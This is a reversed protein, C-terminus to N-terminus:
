AASRWAETLGILGAVSGLAGVAAESVVGGDVSWHLTLPAYALDVVLAKWWADDEKAITNVDVKEASVGVVAQRAARERLRLARVRALKGLDLAVHAAWFRASWKWARAQRPKSLAPVVGKASLYAANELMQFAANVGIQAAAIARLVADSPPKAITARAWAYIGLLGWLRAFM